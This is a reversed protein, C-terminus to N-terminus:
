DDTITELPIAVIGKSHGTEKDLQFFEMFTVGSIGEPMQAPFFEGLYKQKQANRSETFDLFVPDLIDPDVGEIDWCADYDGPIEKATVFSGNLFFRKADQQESTSFHM